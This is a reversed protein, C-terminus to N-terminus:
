LINFTGELLTTEKDSTKYVIKISNYAALREDETSIKLKYFGDNHKELKGLDIQKGDTTFAYARYEQDKKIEGFVNGGLIYLNAFMDLIIKIKGGEEILFHRNAQGSMINAFSPDKIEVSTLAISQYKSATKNNFVFDTGKNNSFDEKYLNCNSKFKIPTYSLPSEPDYISDSCAKFCIRSISMSILIFIFFFFCLWLSFRLAPIGEKIYSDTLRTAISNTASSITSM